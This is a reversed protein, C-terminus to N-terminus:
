EEKKATALMTIKNAANQKADHVCVHFSYQIGKGQLLLYRKKGSLVKPLSNRNFFLANRCDLHTAETIVYTLPPASTSM